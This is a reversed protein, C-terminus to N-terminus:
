STNSITSSQIVLFLLVDLFTQIFVRWFKGGHNAQGPIPPWSIPELPAQANEPSVSSSSQGYTLQLHPPSHSLSPPSCSPEYLLLTAPLKDTFPSPHAGSGFHMYKHAGQRGM